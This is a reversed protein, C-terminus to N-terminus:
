EDDPLASQTTPTTAAASSAADIWVASLDGGRVVGGGICSWGPSLFIRERTLQDSPVFAPLADFWGTERQVLDDDMPEGAFIGGVVIPEGGRQQWAVILRQEEATGNSASLRVSGVLFKKGDVVSAAWGGVIGDGGDIAEGDLLPQNSLLYNGSAQPGNPPYSMRIQMTTVLSALDNSDVDQLLLYDPKLRRIEAFIGEDGPRRGKLDCVVFRLKRDPVSSAASTPAAPSQAPPTFVLATVIVGGFALLGVCLMIGRFSSTSHDPRENM